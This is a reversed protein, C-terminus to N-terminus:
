RKVSGENCFENWTELNGHFANMDIFSEEGLYGSLRARNSYQWFTWVVDKRPKAMVNRIWLPYEEYSGKLYKEWVEETSYIVPKKGFHAEVKSLFITLERNVDERLPPNSPKDGYYEVDVVPALMGEFSELQAIFHEAQLEGPSDFSFFHYAGIKLDTKKAEKWNNYFEPDIHTSGETAKIYAFRISNESLLEWDIDGQYHSVDVGRVPYKAKSPYNLFIYGNYIMYAYVCSAGGLFLLVAVLVKIKKM